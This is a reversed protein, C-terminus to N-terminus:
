VQHRLRVPLRDLVFSVVVKQHSDVVVLAYRGARQVKAHIVDGPQFTDSFAVLCVTQKGLPAVEPIRTALSAATVQRVGEPRGKHHVEDAAVPIAKICATSGTGLTNRPTCSALSVAAAVAVLLGAFTRRV